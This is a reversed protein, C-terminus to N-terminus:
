ETPKELPFRKNIESNIISLNRKELEIKQMCDFGLAKLEVESKKTIDLTNM